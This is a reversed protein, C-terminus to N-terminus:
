HIMGGFDPAAKRRDDAVEIRAREKISCATVEVPHPVNGNLTILIYPGIQKSRANILILPKECSATSFEHLSIDSAVDQWLHIYDQTTITENMM